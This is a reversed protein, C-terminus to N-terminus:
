GFAPQHKGPFIIEVPLCILVYTPFLEVLINFHLLIYHRKDTTHYPGSLLKLIKQCTITRFFSLQKGSVVNPLTQNWDKLTTASCFSSLILFRQLATVDLLFQVQCHSNLIISTMQGFLVQHQPLKIYHVSLISFDMM